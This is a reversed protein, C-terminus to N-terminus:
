DALEYGITTWAMAAERISTIRFIRDRRTNHRAADWTTQFPDLSIPGIFSVFSSLSSFNEYQSPRDLSSRIAAGSAAASAAESWLGGRSAGAGSTAWSSNPAVSGGGKGSLFMKGSSHRVSVGLSRSM